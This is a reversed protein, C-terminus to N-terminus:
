KEMNGETDYDKAIEKEPNDLKKLETQATKLDLKYKDVTTVLQIVAFKTIRLEHLKKDDMIMHWNDDIMTRQRGYDRLIIEWAKSKSLGDIVTNCEAIRSILQNRYEEM